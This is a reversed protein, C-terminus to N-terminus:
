IKELFASIMKLLQCLLPASMGVIILRGLLAVKESLGKLGCDDITGCSFEILYGIITVKLCTFIIKNDIGSLDSLQKFLSITETLYSVTYLSIIVGGSILALLFFESNINKLYICLVATVIAFAIIKFLM